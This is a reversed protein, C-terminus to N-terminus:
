TQHGATRARAQLIREREIAALEGRLGDATPPLATAPLDHSAGGPDRPGHLSVAGPAMRAPAPTRMPRRPAFHASLREAPLHAVEIADGPCLLVARDIVNRLERLNGPWPN